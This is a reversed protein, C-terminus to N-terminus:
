SSILAMYGLQRHLKSLTEDRVWHGDEVALDFKGSVLNNNTGICKDVIRAYNSPFFTNNSLAKYQQCSM